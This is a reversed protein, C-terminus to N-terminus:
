ILHKLMKLVNTHSLPYIHSLGNDAEASYGAILGTGLVVEGNVMRRRLTTRPAPPPPPVVEVPPPPPVAIPVETLHPTPKATKGVTPTPPLPVGKGTQKKEARRRRNSEVTKKKKAEKAEEATAYKKPRGAKKKAGADIQEEAQKHEEFAKSLDKMQKEDERFHHAIQDEIGMQETEKAEKAKQKKKLVKSRRKHEAEKAHLERNAIGTQEEAGMSEVEKKQKKTLRQPRKNHYSAKCDPMSLACMYSVNHTKAFERVHETWANAM